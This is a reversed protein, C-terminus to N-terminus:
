RKEVEDNREQEKNREQERSGEVRGEEARGGEVAFFLLIDQTWLGSVLFWAWFSHYM